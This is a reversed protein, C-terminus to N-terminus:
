RKAGTFFTFAGCEFSWSIVMDYNAIIALQRDRRGNRWRRKDGDCPSPLKQCVEMEDDRKPSWANSSHCCSSYSPPQRGSGISARPIDPIVPQGGRTGVDTSEQLPRCSSVDYAIRSVHYWTRVHYTMRPACTSPPPVFVSINTPSSVRRASLYAICGYVHCHPAVNVGAESVGERRCPMWM